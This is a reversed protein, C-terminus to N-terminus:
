KKQKKKLLFLLILQQCKHFCVITGAEAKYPTMEFICEKVVDSILLFQSQLVFFLSLSLVHRPTTLSMVNIPLPRSFNKRSHLKRRLAREDKQFLYASSFIFANTFPSPLTIFLPCNCTIILLFLNLM